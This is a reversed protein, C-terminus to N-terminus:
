KEDKLETVPNQMESVIRNFESISMNSPVFQEEVWEFPRVYRQLAERAELKAKVVCIEIYDDETMNHHTVTDLITSFRCYLGNPQKCIFSGM